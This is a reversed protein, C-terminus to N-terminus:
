LQIMPRTSSTMLTEPCRIDVASTSDAITECPLTASAATMPWASSSVPWAIVAKTVSLPSVAPSSVRTASMRSCTARRMPLSARGLRTIQASSRGFVREPFIM